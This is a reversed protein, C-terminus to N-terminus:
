RRPMALFTNSVTFCRMSILRASKSLAKLPCISAQSKSPKFPRNSSIALTFVLVPLSFAFSIHFMMEALTSASDERASAFMRSPSFTAPLMSFSSLASMSSCGKRAFNLVKFMSFITEDKFCCTSFAKAPMRSSKLDARLAEFNGSTTSCWCLRTLYWRWVLRQSESAAWWSATFASSVAALHGPDISFKTFRKTFFKPSLGSSRVSVESNIASNFWSLCKVSLAATQEDSASAKIPPWM